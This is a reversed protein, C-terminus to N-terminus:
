LPCDLLLAIQSTTHPLLIKLAADEYAGETISSYLNDHVAILLRAVGLRAALRLPQHSLSFNRYINYMLSATAISNSHLLMRIGNVNLHSWPALGFFPLM